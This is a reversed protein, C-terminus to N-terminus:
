LIVAWGVSNQQYIQIRPRTRVTSGENRWEVRDARNAVVSRLYRGDGRGQAERRNAPDIDRDKDGTGVLNWSKRSNPKLM